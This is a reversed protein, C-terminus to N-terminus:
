FVTFPAIVMFKVDKEDQFINSYGGEYSPINTHNDYQTYHLKFTTEKLRGQQIQYALDLSWASEKLRQQQDWAPNTSPKADWGWAYSAGVKWGALQWPSLDLMAGVFVAKEGNANWDSRQDWWIDLRGNSSAYGPTMRQLFYGQNGEAKVWTGELRLDVPGLTYGLTLAQLWALGDYVDNPNSAGGREKDQAGYFQYSTRLDNEGLPFAWSLKAFYQDMYHAAQGFAGELVLNNKFDYKVGISHLYPIGTKGDAKRFNYMHQYWPAKYYDSWMYSFSLEGATSFDYKAGSELGRYTGPLFSWHPALLTQGSPQLYGARLWYDSWKLKVAAKYISAGSKDGSWEEDWRTRADSFGIENPAAPGSNALEVAGFVALDLGIFDAAYGSQYDLSTNLTSHHLNARYQGYHEATPTLEKRDRQRQWYYFAGTLTSDEVFGAAYVPLTSIFYGAGSVIAASFIFPISIKNGM